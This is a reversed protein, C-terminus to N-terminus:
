TIMLLVGLVITLIALIVDKINLYTNLNTSATKYPNLVAFVIWVIGAIIIIVGLIIM